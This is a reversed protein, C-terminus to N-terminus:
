SWRCADAPRKFPITRERVWAVFNLEYPVVLLRNWIYLSESFIEAEIKLIFFSYRDWFSRHVYVLRYQTVDCLVQGEYYNCCSHWIQSAKGLIFLNTCIHVRRIALTMTKKSIACLIYNCGISILRLTETGMKTGTASHSFIYCQTRQSHSTWRGESCARNCAVAWNLSSLVMVRGFQTEKVTSESSHYYKRTRKRTWTRKKVNEITIQLAAVSIFQLQISLRSSYCYLCAACSNLLSM